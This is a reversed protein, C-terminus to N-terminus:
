QVLETYIKFLYKQEEEWCLEKAATACNEKWKKLQKPDSLMADIGEAIDAPNEANVTLGVKYRPVYEEMTPINSALVPVGAMIYEFFKNPLAFKHNESIPELLTAAIDAQSAFDVILHNPVFPHFIIREDLDLTQVLERLTTEIMGEGVLLLTVQPLRAVAKILNELGRHPMFYGHFLILPRACSLQYEPSEPRKPKHYDPVNRIISIHKILPYLLRYREAIPESVTILEDLLPAIRREFWLWLNKRLPRKQYIGLGPFYEHADYILRSPNFLQRILVAPVVWLGRLHIIEYKRFLIHLLLAFNFWFFKLPGSKFPVKIQRLPFPFKVPIGTEISIAQVEFGAQHATEVENLVRRRNEIPDISIFLIRKM